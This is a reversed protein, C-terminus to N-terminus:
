RGAALTRVLARLKDLYEAAPRPLPLGNTQRLTVRDLAALADQPKHIAGTEFNPLRHSVPQGAQAVGPLGGPYGSAVFSPNRAIALRPLSPM